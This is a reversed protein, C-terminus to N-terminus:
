EKLKVSYIGDFTKQLRYIKNSRKRYDLDEKSILGMEYFEDLAADGADYDFFVGVLVNIKYNRCNITAPLEGSNRKMLDEKIKPILALGENCLDLCEQYKETGYHALVLYEMIDFRDILSLKKSKMVHDGVVISLLYNHDENAKAIVDKCFSLESATDSGEIYRKLKVKDRDSLESYWKSMGVKDIEAPVDKSKGLHM